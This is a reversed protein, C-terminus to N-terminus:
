RRCRDVQAVAMCCVFPCLFSLYSFEAVGSNVLVFIGKVGREARATFVKEYENKQAFKDLLSMKEQLSTGNIQTSVFHPGGVGAGANSHRGQKRLRLCIITNSDPDTRVHIGGVKLDQCSKPACPKVIIAAFPMSEQHLLSLQEHPSVCCRTM